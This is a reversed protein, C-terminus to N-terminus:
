MVMRHILGSTTVSLHTEFPQIYGDFFYEALDIYSRFLKLQTSM